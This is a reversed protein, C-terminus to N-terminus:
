QKRERAAIYNWWSRAKACRVSLVGLAGGGRGGPWGIRTSGRRRRSWALIISERHAQPMLAGDFEATEMEVGGKGGIGGGDQIEVMAGLM